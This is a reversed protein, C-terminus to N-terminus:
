TADASDNGKDKDARLAKLRNIKSWQENKTNNYARSGPNLTLLKKELEDIQVELLKEEENKTM